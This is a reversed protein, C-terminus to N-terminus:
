CIIRPKYKIRLGQTMRLADTNTQMRARNLYVDVPERLQLIWPCVWSLMAFVAHIHASSICVSTYLNCHFLYVYVSYLGTHIYICVRTYKHASSVAKGSQVESASREALLWRSGLANLYAHLYAYMYLGVCLSCKINRETSEQLVTKGNGQGDLVQVIVETYGSSNTLIQTKWTSEILLLCLYHSCVNM